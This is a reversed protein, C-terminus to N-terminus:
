GRASATRRNSSWAAGTSSRPRKIEEEIHNANYPKVLIKQVGLQLYKLVSNRDSSGTYILVPLNRFIFDKRVYELFQWGYEGQLQNDLIVLDILTNRELVSIAEGVSSATHPEHGRKQLLNVLIRASVPDDEVILLHPM